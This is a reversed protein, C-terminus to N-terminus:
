RVSTAARQSDVSSTSAEAVVADDIVAFHLVAVLRDRDTWERCFELGATAALAAFEDVAYKHSYETGIAEGDDFAIRHDALTVVQSCRSVLSMEIRGQAGNYVARHTFQALDFDAGLERNIRQLLNLNFLATVGLRDNYAAELTQADKKLDIGILLGGGRGCRRAIGRLLDTAEAPTFNGITSGPFYITTHTPRRRPVPLAFEETFDAVASLVEVLPYDRALERVARHLHEESVDVGAYAVVDPLADLLYRTKVSSGSGYEVLMAGPGIQSGMADAYQELICLETRTLYYEDLHCIRDFLVSGRADYFYKCPLQKPVRQLGALVDALFRRQRPLARNRTVLGTM